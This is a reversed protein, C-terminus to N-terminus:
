QCLKQGGAAYYAKARAVFNGGDTEPTTQDSQGAGFVAGVAHAAALEDMHAFFYDVRNDQYHNATNNQSANGLPTQWYLAPKNLAETLAKVWALDQHFDPLKANTADWWTNRNQVTQYYGADRDSTEVVVFDAGSEGCAALFTALKQAEGAVDFAPNTNGAVDINTGWASAHLAVLAHPAYKHAMAVLCQGMGAVSDEMAGCDTANASTVAAKTAHPDGNAQEAYGWFDPELHLLAVGQGIQQLVFRWDAFYKTMTAADAVQAVEPAGEGPSASRIQYYSIMPIQPPTAKACNGALTRVFAGPPDQDYQWCGWWNCGGAANACSKGAATCGTACSACPATGDFFGGSLYDYRVDFPAAAATADAMSGGVVLRTRGMATLMASGLCSGAAGDGLGGSSGGSGGSSSGSADGGGSGSSGGSGGGSGSGGSSTGDAGADDGAGRADDGGCSPAAVLAAIAALIVGAGRTGPM